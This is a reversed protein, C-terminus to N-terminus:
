VVPGEPGEASDPETTAGGSLHPTPAGGASAGGAFQCAWSRPGLWPKASRRTPRLATTCRRTARSPAVSSPM